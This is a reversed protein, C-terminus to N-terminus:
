KWGAKSVRPIDQSPQALTIWFSLYLSKPTWKNSCSFWWDEVRLAHTQSATHTFDYCSKNPNYCRCFVKSEFLSFHLSFTSTDVAPPCNSAKLKSRINFSILVSDSQDVSSVKLRTRWCHFCLLIDWFWNREPLAQLCYLTKFHRSDSRLVTLIGSFSWTILVPATTTVM